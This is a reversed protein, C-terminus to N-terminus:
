WTLAEPPRWALWLQEGVDACSLPGVDDPGLKSLPLDEAMVAAVWEADKTVFLGADTCVTPEGGTKNYVTLPMEFGFDTAQHASPLRRPLGDSFQQRFLMRRCHAAAGEPLRDASEAILAFAEALARPTATGFPTAGFSASGSSGHVRADPLGFADMCRNVTDPGGVTRLVVNTAVNDSVIIMLCALDDLTLTLGPTLYRLVGSGLTRDDDTLTVRTAPDLTGAAVQEAYTVLIFQKAGSATDMPRSGDVDVTEGTTLNRAFVGFMGPRGELIQRVDDAVAM